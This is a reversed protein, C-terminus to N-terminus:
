RHVDSLEDIFAAAIFGDDFVIKQMIIQDEKDAVFPGGILRVRQGRRAQLERESSTPDDVYRTFIATSM